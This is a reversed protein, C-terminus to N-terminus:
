GGLAKQAKGFWVSKSDVILKIQKLKDKGNSTDFGDQQAGNYLDRAVSELKTKVTSVSDGAGLREAEIVATRAKQYNKQALAKFAAKPAVTGLKGEIEGVFQGGVQKDYSVASRLNDFAILPDQAPAEGTNLAKYLKQYYDATTRLKPAEDDDASKAANSLVTAADTFKRKRYLDDAKAKAASDDAVAVKKPATTPPTDEVVKKEQKKPEKRAQQKPPTKIEQKPPTPAVVQKTEQKPPTPAVAVQKPTEQKPPTPPTVAVQPKTDTSPASPPPTVASGKAMANTDPANTATATKSTDPKIMEVSVSKKAATTDGSETKAVPKAKSSSSKAIAITLVAAIVAIAAAAAIYKARQSIQPPVYARQQVPPQGMMMPDYSIPPVHATSADGRRNQTQILLMQAHVSHPPIETAQPYPYAPRAPAQGPITTPVVNQLPQMGMQGLPNMQGMPMQEGLLVPDRASPMNAPPRNAMQPLPLTSAPQPLLPAMPPLGLPPPQSASLSRLPMPPPLTKPRAPRPPAVPTPVPDVEEDATSRPMPKGAVTSLEEEYEEGPQPQRTPAKDQEFRFVTNGIEITDGNALMFPNDEVNGNVVTGNGSRHDVIVWAGEEHRLEFHKRSVAIDTLVIDQDIARGVSYSKGPRIEFTQGTDNGQTIALRANQDSRLPTIASLVPAHQDDVTPEDIGSTHTVNTNNQKLARVKDAVEGQEVTTSAEDEWQSEITTKEDEDGVDGGDPYPKAKPVVHASVRQPGGPNGARGM